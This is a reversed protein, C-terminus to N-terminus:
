QRWPIVGQQSEQDDTKKKYELGKLFLILAHFHIFFIIQFTIFPFRLTYYMLRRNTIALKISKLITTVEIDKNNFSHIVISLNKESDKIHYEMDENMKTFPSVYFNKKCKIYFKNNKEPNPIFIPKLEKFTNCIQILCYRENENTTIFYYSVPNFVYGFVRLSTVLKISTIDKYFGQEQLYKSVNQAISLNPTYWHDKDFLSFVNKKNYSFFWLKRELEEIEDLEIHFWFFRFPFNYKKPIFRKHIVKNLSFCSKM